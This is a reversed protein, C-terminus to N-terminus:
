CAFATEVLSAFRAFDSRLNASGEVRSNQRASAAYGRLRVEKLSEQGDQSRSRYAVDARSVVMGEVLVALFITIGFAGVTLVRLISM